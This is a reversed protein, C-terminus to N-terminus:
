NRGDDIGENQDVNEMVPPAAEIVAGENYKEILHQIVQIAGHAAAANNEYEQLQMTTDRLLKELYERQIM